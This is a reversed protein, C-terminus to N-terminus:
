AEWAVRRVPAHTEVCPATDFFDRLDFCSELLLCSEFFNFAAAAFAERQSGLEDVLGLELAQRGTWVKGQAIEEVREASLGRGAVVRAKFMAYIDLLLQRLRAREEDTFPDDGALITANEGREVTEIHAQLKEYLGGTVLKGMIVGISGTLTSAQAVIHDALASV